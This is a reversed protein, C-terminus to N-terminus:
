PGRRFVMFQRQGAADPLEIVPSIELTLRTAAAAQEAALREELIGAPTKYAVFCAGVQARLLQRSERLVRSAPGVARALVIDYKNRHEPLRGAERAQCEVVSCNDLGLAAIAQRVFTAKGRHREVGAVTLRPNAWALPLLPFGAGCGIDAVRVTDTLLGPLVRAVALSDAVHKVWFDRPCTLRTLNRVLNAQELQVRLRELDFLVAM